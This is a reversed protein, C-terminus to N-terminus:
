TIVLRLIFFISRKIAINNENAKDAKVWFLPGSHSEPCFNQLPAQWGAASQLCPPGGGGPSTTGMSVLM